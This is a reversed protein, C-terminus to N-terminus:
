ASLGLFEKLYPDNIDKLPAPEFAIDREIGLGMVRLDEMEKLSNYGWEGEGQANITVGFLEGTQLNAETIYWTWAGSPFFFKASCFANERKGDQSCIPYKELSKKIKETLLKM